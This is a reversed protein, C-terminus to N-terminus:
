LARSHRGAEPALHADFAACASRMFPRGLDTVTLRDGSWQVLGDGVFRELAHRAGSLEDVRRGYRACVAALDVTLDCMLREIIEARFRDDDTLAVGRAVPLRGEGVAKRWELEGPLNQVYGQPLRGIASVGFGILTPNPDATYGQFNRRLRGERAAVALEDGPLAFHDLGIAVYGEAELRDAAAESQELREATGPLDEDRILKQHAKMWPVHAYGFLAVRDPKLTLVQDLTSIVDATRQLPLGYMLDVNVSKVGADRLLGAARAVVEFPEIRNVARQVAESLDQVGLSARSLGHYAAARVWAPDVQAPDLEAAIEADPDVKLVARLTDFLVALDDVRLMNPTGGGLHIARARLAAPLHAQVMAVEERLLAVYDGISETRHIVRTNCGCYWCLRACFPVHVYL